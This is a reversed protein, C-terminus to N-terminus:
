ATISVKIIEGPRYLAKDTEVRVVPVDRYYFSETHHGLGGASDRATLAVDPSRYQFSDADPLNLDTVKAIGYKNTRITKLVPAAGHAGNDDETTGSISVECPAPTGDAYSTALYFQLPFGRAQRYSGEAVYIHIAEKSVRLDFRRQETRNTTPDTFYAAYHLDSFRSYEESALEQHDKKLDIHVVFRGADNTEGDYNDGAKIDWKQQRFNWKRDEERVVRVHGSKVPQGFLYDANVEVDANQQPLYYARDTKVKVAFNPLDYRSIKVTQYARSDSFAEDDMEVAVGYAGLRTNEPIAWDASAVGFRSTHLNAEFVTTNEPDTIKLTAKSNAAAHNAADFVLTRVHLLQGPQYIPKDTMLMIQANETVEIDGSTERVYGGHRATLKLEGDDASFKAPINLTILAYGDANTIGSAKLTVAPEEDDLKLKVDVNVDKVAKATLPHFARVHVYHHAGRHTYRPTSVELSFIDPTDIQSLSILGSTTTPAFTAEASPEIRYRLRYWLLEKDDDKNLAGGPLTLPISLKNLGPALTLVRFALGRIDDKPDLLELKLRVSLDQGAPNVVELSVLTQTQILFRTAPENVHLGSNATAFQVFVLALSLCLLSLLWRRGM